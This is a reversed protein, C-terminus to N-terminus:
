ARWAGPRPQCDPGCPYGAEWPFAGEGHTWTLQFAPVSVVSPRQYFRNAALVVDGPNPCEEVFLRIGRDDLVLLEGPVLDRGDAVGGAVRDLVGHTSGCDLGVVVLEAHGLGFLGITYGFSPEDPGDGAGVYQVAFRSTRIVQALHADEQDLWAQIQPDTTM